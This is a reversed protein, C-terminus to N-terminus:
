HGLAEVSIEDYALARATEIDDALVDRLTQAQNSQLIVQWENLGGGHKKVGSAARQAAELDGQRAYARALYLYILLRHRADPVKAALAQNLHEVAAASEGLRDEIMGLNYVAVWEDPALEYAKLAARRAETYNGVQLEVEALGNYAVASEPAIEIMKKYDRRAQGTQGWLRLLEARFRLHNPNKPEAKVLKNMVEVAEKYRNKRMHRVAQQYEMPGRPKFILAGAVVWGVALGLMLTLRDPLLFVGLLVAGLAPALISAWRGREFPPMASGVILLSGVLWVIVLASQAPRVWDAESAFGNLVLNALGTAALLFFLARLRGPGLFLRIQTLM